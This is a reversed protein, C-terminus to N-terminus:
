MLEVHTPLFLLVQRSQSCFVQVMIYAHTHTRAHSHLSFPCDKHCVVYAHREHLREYRMRLFGLM